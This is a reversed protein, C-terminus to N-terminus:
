PAELKVRLAPTLDVTDRASGAVASRILVVCGCERTLEQLAAPLRQAFARAMLLAQQRDQESGTKTLLQTFEAEKVRYVEAVDVLGIALAPKVITHHYLALAGASVSAALVGRLLIRASISSM